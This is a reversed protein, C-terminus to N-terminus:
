DLFTVDAPMGPKLQSDPNPLSIRIAYVTAKRGEVTQVNRPTFEAQDSIYEVVGIFTKEPYSDVRISVQDGINIVGYQDEPVYVTLEVTELMAITMTTMGAGVLQGIELSESIITGTMPSVVTAKAVQIQMLVLAANAQDIGALAQKVQAEALAINARASAVMLSDEGVLLADQTLKTTDVRNEALLVRARAELLDEFEDVSLLRELEQQILELDTKADNFSEQALERLQEDSGPQSFHMLTQQAILYTQQAAALDTELEELKEDGFEAIWEALTEQEKVLAAEADMLEMEIATHEKDSPYYWAPLLFDEPWPVQSVSSTMQFEEFRAGQEALAFQLEAATLQELATQYAAEASNVGAAAQDLQAQLIEDDMKFLVDGVTVADGSSVFIEVVRGGLEPSIDLSAASITGSATLADTKENSACAAISVSLILLTLIKILTPKSM